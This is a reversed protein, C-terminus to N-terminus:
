PKGILSQKCRRRALCEYLGINLVHGGREGDAFSYIGDDVEAAVSIWSRPAGGQPSVDETAVIHELCSPAIGHFPEHECAAIMCQTEISTILPDIVVDIRFGVSSVPHRFRKTFHESTKVSVLMA